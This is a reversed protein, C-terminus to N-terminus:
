RVSTVFQDDTVSRNACESKMIKLTNRKLGVTVLITQRTKSM